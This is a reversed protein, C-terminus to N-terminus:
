FDDKSMFIEGVSYFCHTKSNKRLAPKFQATDNLFVPGGTPLGSFTNIGAYVTSEQFCFLKAVFV